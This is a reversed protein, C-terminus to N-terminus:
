VIKIAKTMNGRLITLSVCIFQPLDKSRPRLSQYNIGRSALLCIEKVAFRPLSAKLVSQAMQGFGIVISLIM